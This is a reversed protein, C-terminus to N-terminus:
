LKMVEQKKISKLFIGLCDVHAKIVEWELTQKPNRLFKNLREFLFTEDSCSQHFNLVLLLDIQLNYYFCIVFFFVQCFKRTAKRCFVADNQKMGQIRVINNM